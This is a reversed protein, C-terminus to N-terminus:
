KLKFDKDKIERQQEKLCEKADKIYEKVVSGPKKSSDQSSKRLNLNLSLVRSVASDCHSCKEVTESM